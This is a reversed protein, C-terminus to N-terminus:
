MKGPMRKKKSRSPKRLKEPVIGEGYLRMATNVVGVHSFGQPFNGVQRKLEPDYMESLLGLDNRIGLVREFVKQAEAKRGALHLVDVYWLTCMLFAGEGQPLGDVQSSTRYRHVFGDVVLDKEIAAVTGKMRDDNAPLFGVLPIRLLAADVGNGGFYQVFSNMESNFGKELIQGRIEDRVKHWREVPGEFKLMEAIEIARDFAVWAMVKSHTFHRRKGRVEWIGEDPKKWATELFEMMSLILSWGFPTVNGGLSWSKHIADLLEGFVDLQFQKTAANGIRVPTSGEYGQLWDLEIESQRREGAVGYLVQLEAPHGATARLLWRLWQRAEEMYGCGMLAFLTFSADRLWCYRYDWNRVGGIQEPLSTTLAAVIGGTPRYTMAKLTILSRKVPERNGPPVNCGKAWQKWWRETSRLERLPVIPKPVAENSPSWTLTFSVRKGKRVTFDSQLRNDERSLKLKTRLSLRDPGAVAAISGKEDHIWPTISGYDFRAIFDMQM